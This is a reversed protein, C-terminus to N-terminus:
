IVFSLLIAGIYLYSWTAKKDKTSNFLALRLRSNDFIERGMNVEAIGDLQSTSSSFSIDNQATQTGADSKNKNKNQDPDAIFDGNVSLIHQKLYAPFNEVFKQYCIDARFLNGNEILCQKYHQLVAAKYDTKCEILFRKYDKYHAVSNKFSSIEEDWLLQLKSIRSYLSCLIQPNFTTQQWIYKINSEIEREPSSLSKISEAGLVSSSSQRNIKIKQLEFLLFHVFIDLGNMNKLKNSFINLYPQMGPFFSIIRVVHILAKLTEHHSIIYKFTIFDIMQYIQHSIIYDFFELMKQSNTAFGFSDFLEQRNSEAKFEENFNNLINTIAKQHRKNRLFYWLYSLIFCIAFIVIMVIMYVTGNPNSFPITFFRIIDFVGATSVGGLIIVNSLFNIMTGRLISIFCFIMLGFHLGCAFYISWIPFIPMLNAFFGCIASVYFLGILPQLDFSALFSRPLYVSIALFHLGFYSLCFFCVLYIFTIGLLVYMYVPTKEFRNTTYNFNYEM